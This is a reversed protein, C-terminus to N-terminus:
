HRLGAIPPLHSYHPAPPGDRWNQPFSGEPTEVVPPMSDGSSAQSPQCFSKAEIPSTWHMVFVLHRDVETDEVVEADVQVAVNGSDQGFGNGVSPVRVRPRNVDIETPVPFADLDDVVAYSHRDIFHVVLIEADAVTPAFCIRFM